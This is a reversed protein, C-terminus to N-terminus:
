ATVGHAVWCAVDHHEGLPALPPRETTCRAIAVPCRPHFRCGAPWQDPPPVTGAIPVLRAGDSALRPISAFLGRTYPHAPSAFLPTTDASEVLRGGYMVLVRDARGAVIGLDHTILLVALGREQRLRDLLELIQAQVTVDLATTPEDAILLSPEGALAMAIMVRQRMGGSLQHPYADVREAPDAIGVEGLLAIARRRVETAPVSQHATIAEGIQAGVRMVPNLSAMPDQFVMAIRRGRWRRLAAEGLGTLEEGEMRISTGEGLRANDPLLRPIALGTLSKGCGSEGVLAVLEGRHVDFSVDDVPVLPTTGDRPFSIRLDRVELLPTM